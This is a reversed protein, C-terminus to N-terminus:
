ISKCENRRQFLLVLALGLVLRISVDIVGVYGPGAIAIIVNITNSAAHALVPIVVSKTKVFLWTLVFSSAMTHYTFYIFNDHSQSSGIVYFLPLHWLSWIFGVIITSKFPSTKKLLEPLAMGRWGFEELGGGLIMILFTPFFQFWPQYIASFQLDFLGSIGIAAFRSVLFIFVALFYWHIPIRWKFAISRYQKLGEKGDAILSTAFPAVTPGLGGISFLAMFVPTGYQFVGTQTLWALLWWSIWSLSFTISLYIFLKNRRM